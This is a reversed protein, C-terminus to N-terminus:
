CGSDQAWTGVITACYTNGGAIYVCRASAGVTTTSICAGTGTYGDLFVAGGTIKNVQLGNADLNVFLIDFSGNSPATLNFQVEASAGLNNVVAIPYTPASNPGADTYNLAARESGYHIQLNGFLPAATTVLSPTVAFYGANPQGVIFEDTYVYMTGSANENVTGCGGLLTADVRVSCTRATGNPEIYISDGDATAAACSGANIADAINSACDADSGASGNCTFDVGETFSEFGDDCYVYVPTMNTCGADTIGTIYHAGQSACVRMDAGACSTNSSDCNASYISNFGPSSIADPDCWKIGDSDILLSGAACTGQTSAALNTPTTSGGGPANYFPGNSLILLTLINAIM